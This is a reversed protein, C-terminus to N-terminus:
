IEYPTASGHLSQKTVTYIVTTYMSLLHFSTHPNLSLLVIVKKKRINPWMVYNNTKCGAAGSNEYLQM